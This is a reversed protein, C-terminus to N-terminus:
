KKKKKSLFCLVCVFDWVSLFVVLCFVCLGVGGGWGLGVCSSFGEPVFFVSSM